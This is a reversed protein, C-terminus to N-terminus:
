RGALAPTGACGGLGYLEGTELNSLYRWANCWHLVNLQGHQSQRSTEGGLVFMPVRYAATSQLAVGTQGWHENMLRLTAYVPDKIRLLSLM